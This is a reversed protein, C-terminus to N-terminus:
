KEQEFVEEFASKLLDFAKVKDGEANREVLDHARNYAEFQEDSCDRCGGGVFDDIDSRYITGTARGPGWCKFTYREGQRAVRELIKRIYPLRKLGEASAKKELATVTEDPLDVLIDM